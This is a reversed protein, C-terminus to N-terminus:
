SPTEHHPSEVNLTPLVYILFEDGKQAAKNFHCFM